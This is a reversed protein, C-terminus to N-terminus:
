SKSGAPLPAVGKTWSRLIEEVATLFKEPLTLLLERLGTLRFEVGAWVVRDGREGKRASIEMGLASMTYLIFGLLLNRRALTGQLCWFSDDLYVQHQGEESPVCSQIVRATWAAVRSWLLPATKYGFLMARFLLFTDEKEVDPALCHELEKPHVGLHPFADSVDVLVMERAWRARQEEGSVDSKLGHLARLTEVGDLARPLVLKEPLTAKSNGGSRRLDIILRRKKAGDPRDKVILALKSITGQSFHEEVERRTVKVVFGKKAIRDVEIRADEQNERVSSYNSLTGAALQSIADAQWEEEQEKDYAPFVGHCHIPVNIGLPSGRDAGGLPSEYAWRSKLALRARPRSGVLRKLEARWGDVLKEDIRCDQTGYAEATEAVGPHGRAFREWTGLIRLGLAQLAPMGAVVKAPDRMGGLFNLLAPDGKRSRHQGLM